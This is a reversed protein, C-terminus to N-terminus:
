LERIDIDYNNKQTKKYSSILKEVKDAVEYGFKNRTYEVAHNGANVFWYGKATKRRGKLVDNLHGLSVGLERSAESQSEFRSVELTNLNIAYVPSSLAKGYKERYQFNYSGDCWELNDVNDNARDCDKHNVQPLNDPNLIFTEAVMRHVKMDIQKGNVGFHVKLYGDKDRRQKLIRGKVVYMGKGRTVVRDLTRVRGITSVQIFSFEPYMKWVENKM